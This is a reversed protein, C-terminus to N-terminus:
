PRPTNGLQRWRGAVKGTVQEGALGGRGFGVGPLDAAARAMDGDDAMEKGSLAMPSAEFVTVRDQLAQLV